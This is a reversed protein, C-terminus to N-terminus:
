ALMEKYTLGGHRRRETLHDGIRGVHLGSSVSPQTFWVGMEWIHHCDPSSYHKPRFFHSRIGPAM